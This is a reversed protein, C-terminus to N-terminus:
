ALGAAYKVCALVDEKKINPYAKLINEPILWLFGALVLFSIDNEKLIDPIRRTEYFDSRSFVTVPVNLKRTREIVFADPNNTLVLATCISGSSHFYEIIRQANSGNGSAFIAINKMFLDIISSYYL